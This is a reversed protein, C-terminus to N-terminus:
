AQSGGAIVAAAERRLSRRLCWVVFVLDAVSLIISLALTWPNITSTGPYGVWGEQIKLYDFAGYYWITPADNPYMPSAPVWIYVLGPVSVAAVVATFVLWKLHLRPPSVAYSLVPSNESLPEL